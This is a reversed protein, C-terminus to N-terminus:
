KYIRKDIEQIFLKEMYEGAEKEVKPKFGESGVIEPISPGAYHRTKMKADRGGKGKPWPFIKRRFIGKHGTSMTQIFGGPIFFSKGLKVSAVVGKPMKAYPFKYLAIRKGKIKLIAVLETLTTRTSEMIKKSSLETKPINYLEVILEILRRKMFTVTKDLTSRTAQRVKKPDYIELAEKVGKLEVEMKIM